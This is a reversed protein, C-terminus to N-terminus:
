LWEIKGFEFEEEISHQAILKGAPSIGKITAEFVLNGKKLKVPKNIKYLHFIYDKYIIKYGGEILQRFRKDICQCLEKTLVLPDFNRGTIQKLSVPNPLDPPFSTQNINIGIGVISWKWKRSGSNQEGVINEILIGGAKKDRWYLDNPWKIKTEDSAYKYFLDHAAVSICASLHFQMSLPIPYPNVLVSLMINANKESSWTKGRQGRGSLQEHAFVAM